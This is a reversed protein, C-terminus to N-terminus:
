LHIKSWGRKKFYVAVLTVITAVQAAVVLLLIVLVSVFAASNSVSPCSDEGKVIFLFLVCCMTYNALSYLM